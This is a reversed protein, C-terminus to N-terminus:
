TKVQQLLAKDMELPEYSTQLRDNMFDLLDISATSVEYDSASAAYSGSLGSIDYSPGGSSSTDTAEPPSSSLRYDSAQPYPYMPVNGKSPM